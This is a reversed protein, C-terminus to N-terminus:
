WGPHPIGPPRMSPYWFDAGRCEGGRCLRYRLKVFSHLFRRILKPLKATKKRVLWQELSPLCHGPASKQYGLILGGAMAQGAQDCGSRLPLQNVTNMLASECRHSEPVDPM